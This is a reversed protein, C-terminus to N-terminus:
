RLAFPSHLAHEIQDNGATNRNQRTSRFLGIDTDAAALDGGDAPRSTERRDAGHPDDVGGPLDHDRAAEVRVDMAARRDGEGAAVLIQQARRRLLDAAGRKIAARRGHEIERQARWVLRQLLRDLQALAFPGPCTVAVVTKVQQQHAIGRLPHEARQWLRDLRTM